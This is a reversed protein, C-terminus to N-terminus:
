RRKGRFTRKLGDYLYSGGAIVSGFGIVGVMPSSLPFVGATAASLGMLGGGLGVLTAGHVYPNKKKVNSQAEM